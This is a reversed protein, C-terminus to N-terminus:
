SKSDGYPPWNVNDVGNIFGFKQISSGWRRLVVTEISVVGKMRKIDTSRNKFSDIANQWVISLFPRSHSSSSTLSLAEAPRKEQSVYFVSAM